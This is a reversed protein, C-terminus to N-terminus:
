ADVPRKDGDLALAFWGRDPLWFRENFAAKLRTARERGSPRATAAPTRSNQVPSTPRTRTVRCRASRSRPHAIRGTPSRSGTSRIRGVRTPWAAIPAASTSSSATATATATASSGPWRGTPPPMLEDPMQPCAGLPAARRAAGRVATHRRGHRLLRHRGRPGALGRAGFRMEHLIRGPQEETLPEEQTGQLATCAGAAHRPRPEPGAAPGDLRYAALRPRVAGHVLARGCRRRRQPHPTASRCRVSTSSARSSSGSSRATKSRRCRSGRSGPWSDVRRRRRRPHVSTGGM